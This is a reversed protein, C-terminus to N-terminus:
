VNSYGILAIGFCSGLPVDPDCFVNEIAQEASALLGHPSRVLEDQSNWALTTSVGQRAYGSAISM